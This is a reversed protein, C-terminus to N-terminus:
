QVQFRVLFQIIVINEGDVDPQSLGHADGAHTHGLLPIGLGGEQQHLTLSGEHVEHGKLTALAAETWSFARQMTRRM